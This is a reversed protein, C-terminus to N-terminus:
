PTQAEPLHSIVSRLKTQSTTRLNEVVEVDITTGDDVLELIAHRIAACDDEGHGGPMTIMVRIRDVAEQVIQWRGVGAAHDLVLFFPHPTLKRGSRLLIFDGARGRVGEMLPMGRGCIPQESSVRAVDGQDYRILPMTFGGLATIVVSADEGPLAPRDDTLFETVVTDSCLHYGPCRPCQWAIVSGAEDSAYIDVVRAGLTSKLAQRAGDDLVGSTSTVLPVHLDDAGFRELAEALLKLTLSYGHIMHPRWLKLAEIWDEPQDRSFLVKTRFIGLRQYWSRKGLRERRSQFSAMRHRPKMGWAMYVRLFSPNFAARDPSRFLIELPVGTSGSTRSRLCRDLRTGETVLQAQPTAQLAERTVIPFLRLDDATKLDAPSVGGRDYLNRYFPVTGYAHHVLRQLAKFQRRELDEKHRWQNRSLQALSILGRM